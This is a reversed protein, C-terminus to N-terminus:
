NRVSVSKRCLRKYIDTILKKESDNMGIFWMSSCYIVGYGIAWCVLHLLNHVSVFMMILTGAIAPIILAPIISGINKWFMPIELGIHRQYYWNMFLINGVFLSIATGAAAGTAGMLKILPISLFINGIAIFFYVIGRVQHKNKARQIEIGLNQILPVTVPIILFLAVFYSEDYGEGGWIRMFPRGLFIFGTLILSLVMFQLRGIRTFLLSLKHNDNDDAVIKNVKPVFVSSISSSLQLYMTNIQAGLGYIAVTSTGIMRGLLFRDVSWNIQDIVQNLFIFFTFRWIDKLLSFEFNKYYFTEKLIYKVFWINAVFQAFTIFTTIVVMGISGFGLILLPLTLFPNLINQLVTLLRQFFFREHAVTICTFVSNPFTIALNVVMLIMLIRAKPYETASLGSKFISEINLVMVAGCALSIVAIVLFVTMFMGNLRSIDEQKGDVKFKSYYRVYSATFGLSLLGLYSVVSQVLQYLGYESQGLLRLMIPTYLLTSLIKILESTYSLIVGVKKQDNKM